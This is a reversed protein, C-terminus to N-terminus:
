GWAERCGTPNPGTSSLDAELAYPTRGAALRWGVTPSCGTPRPDVVSNGHDNVLVFPRTWLHEARAPPPCAQGFLAGATGAVAESPSSRGRPLRRTPSASAAASDAVMPSCPARCRRLHRLARGSFDGTHLDYLPHPQRKDPPPPPDRAAPSGPSDALRRVTAAASSAASPRAPAARAARAAALAIKTAQLLPDLLMGTRRRVEPEEGRATPPASPGRQPPVALGIAPAVTQLDRQRFSVTEGTPSAARRPERGATPAPWCSAAPTSCRASWTSADQEVGDAARPLPRGGRSLRAHAGHRSRCLRAPTRQQGPRDAVARKHWTGLVDVRPSLPATRSVGHRPWGRAFDGQQACCTNVHPSRGRAPQGGPRCGTPDGSVLEQAPPWAM